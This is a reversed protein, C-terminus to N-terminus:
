DIVAALQDLGTGEAEGLADRTALEGLVVRFGDEPAEVAGCVVRFAEVAGIEDELGNGLRDRDLVLREDRGFLVRGIKM